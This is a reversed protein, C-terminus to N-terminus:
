LNLHWKIRWHLIIEYRIKSEHENKKCIYSGVDKAIMKMEVLNKNHWNREGYEM